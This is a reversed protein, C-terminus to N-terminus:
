FPWWIKQTSAPPPSQDVDPIENARAQAQEALVSFSTQQRKDTAIPSSAILTEDIDQKETAASASSKYPLVTLSLLLMANLCVFTKM